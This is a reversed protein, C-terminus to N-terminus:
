EPDDVRSDKSASSKTLSEHTPITHFKLRELVVKCGYLLM